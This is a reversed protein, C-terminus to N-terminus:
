LRRYYIATNNYQINNHPMDTSNLRNHSTILPSYILKKWYKHDYLIIVM